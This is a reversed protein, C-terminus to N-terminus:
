SDLLAEIENLRNELFISDESNKAKQLEFAYSLIALSMYDQADKGQYSLQLDTIKENIEKEIRKILSEEKPDVKVPYNRGSITVMIRKLNEEAM